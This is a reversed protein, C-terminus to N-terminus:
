AHEPPITMGPQRQVFLTSRFYHNIDNLVATNREVTANSVTVLATIEARIREDREARERQSEILQERMEKELATVRKYLHAVVGILIAIIAYLGYTSIAAATTGMDM